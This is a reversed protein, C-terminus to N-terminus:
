VNGEFCEGCVGWLEGMFSWIDLTPTVLSIEEM